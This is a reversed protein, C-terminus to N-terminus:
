QPSISGKSVDRTAAQLVCEGYMGLSDWFAGELEWYKGNLKMFETDNEYLNRIASFIHLTRPYSDGLNVVEGSGIVVAKLM